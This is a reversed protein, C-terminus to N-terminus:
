GGRRVSVPPYRRAQERYRGPTVARQEWILNHWITAENRLASEAMRALRGSLAPLDVIARVRAWVRQNSALQRFVSPGFRDYWLLTHATSLSGAWPYPLLLWRRSLRELADELRQQEVVTKSDSCERYHLGTQFRDGGVTWLEALGYEWPRQAVRSGATLAFRGCMFLAIRDREKELLALTAMAEKFTEGPFGSFCMAEVALGAQALCDIARVVARRDLGKDIRELIKPAGSEVGLSVALGGSKALDRCLFPELSPEPRLDTAWRCSPGDRRLASSLRQLSKPAIVDQSFHFIHCGHQEALAKLHRAVQPVPRERYPATGKEALGYHCFACKGWYCGRTADYPLVAAPSFYDNLPLGKFDPPPLAGLDRTLTGQLVGVTAKGNDLDRVVQLLRQEGEGLIVTEFPGLAAFRAQPDLRYFLQTVAPGGLVLHLRPLRERLVYGLTFAQQIQATYAVSIGVLDVAAAALKGSLADFFYDHFPNKEARADQRICDVDLLSFPTRYHSFDIELPTYAAAIMRLADEIVGVAAYYGEPDFFVAESRLAAVAAEIKGPTKRSLRRGLQLAVYDLQEPHQLRARRELHRLRRDIRRALLALHERTFLRTYAELNADIPIVEIGNERLFATLTPVSLYPATPDASPPFVLAVKM